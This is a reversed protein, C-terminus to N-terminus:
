HGSKKKPKKSKKELTQRALQRTGDPLDRSHAAKEIVDIRMIPLLMAATPVPTKPNFLLAKAINQNRRYSPQSGIYRLAAAHANTAEAVGLIFSEPLGPQSIIEEAIGDDNGCVLRMKQRLTGRKAIYQIEKPGVQTQTHAKTEDAPPKELTISEELKIAPVIATFARKRLRPKEMADLKDLIEGYTCHENKRLADRLEKHARLLDQRGKMEGVLEAPATPLFATLAPIPLRPNLAAALNVEESEYEALLHALLPVPTEDDNALAVIVPQPYDYLSILAQTRVADCEDVTLRAILAAPAAEGGPLFRKALQIRAAEDLEGADLQALTEQIHPNDEPRLERRLLRAEDRQRLGEMVLSPIDLVKAAAPPADPSQVSFAAANERLLHYVADAGHGAEGEAHAVGGSALLLECAGNERLDFRCHAPKKSTEFIQLLEEPSLLDAPGAIRWRSNTVIGEPSPPMNMAARMLIQTTTLTITKAPAPDPFPLIQFHGTMSAQLLPFLAGVGKIEGLRADIIEGDQLFIVGRGAQNELELCLDRHNFAAIQLFEFLGLLEIDGQITDASM